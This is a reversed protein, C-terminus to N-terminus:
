TSVLVADALLGPPASLQPCQRDEIVNWWHSPAPSRHDKRLVTHLQGLIVKALSTNIYGPASVSIVESSYTALLHRLFVTRDQLHATSAVMSSAELGDSRQVTTGAHDNDATAVVVLVM